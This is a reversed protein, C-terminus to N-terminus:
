ILNLQVPARRFKIKLEPRDQRVFSDDVADECDKGPLKSFPESQFEAVIEQMGPPAARLLLIHYLGQGGLAEPRPM